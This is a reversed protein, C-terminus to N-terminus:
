PMGLIRKLTKKIKLFDALLVLSKHLGTKKLFRQFPTGWSYNWLHVGYADDGANKGDFKRIDDASFPYFYKKPFISVSELDKETLLSTVIRPITELPPNTDYFAMVKKLFPHGKEAGIIAANIYTNDEKGLFLPLSLLPELDKLMFMDTDLYIGGEEELAKLRVYDSVFAWKKEAYAKKTYPHSLVDFSDENWEKIEYGPLVKEWSRLCRLVIDPKQKKGFWCYHIKKPIM